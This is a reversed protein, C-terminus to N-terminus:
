LESPICNHTLWNFIRIDKNLFHNLFKIKKELIKEHKAYDKKLDVISIYDKLLNDHQNKMIVKFEIIDIISNLWILYLLFFLLILMFLIFLVMISIDKNKSFRFM